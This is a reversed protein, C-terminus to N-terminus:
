KMLIGNCITEVRVSRYQYTFYLKLFKNNFDDTSYWFVYRSCFVMQEKNSCDTTEDVMISYHKSNMIKEMIKETVLDRMVQLLENQVDPCTYTQSRTLLSKLELSHEADHQLM